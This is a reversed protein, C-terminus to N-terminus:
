PAASNPRSKRWSAWCRPEAAALLIMKVPSPDAQIVKDARAHQLGTAFRDNALAPFTGALKPGFFAALAHQIQATGEQAVAQVCKKFRAGRVLECLIFYQFRRGSCRWIRRAGCIQGASSTSTALVQVQKAPL